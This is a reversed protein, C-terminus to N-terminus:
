SIKSNKEYPLQNIKNLIEKSILRYTDKEKPLEMYHTTDIREGIYIKVKRKKIPGIKFLYSYKIYVPQVPMGTERVVIGIGPKATFSKRGGEPFILISRNDALVATVQDITARDISGRRVPISNFYRIMNGFLPVEFLETKALFSIETPLVSGIFPPDFYSLHNAAIICPTWDALREKNEVKYRFGYKM